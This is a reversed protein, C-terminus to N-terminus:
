GCQGTRCPSATERAARESEERRTNDALERWQRRTMCTRTINSRSGILRERRCIVRNDDDPAATQMLDMPIDFAPLDPQTEATAAMPMFQTLVLAAAAALKLKSNM